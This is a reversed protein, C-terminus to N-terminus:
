KMNLYTSTQIYFKDAPVSDDNTFFTNDKKCVIYILIISKLSQSSNHGKLNRDSYFFIIM